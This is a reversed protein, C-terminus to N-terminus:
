IGAAEIWEDITMQHMALPEFNVPAPKVAASIGKIIEKTVEGAFKAHEASPSKGGRFGIAAKQSGTDEVKEKKKDPEQRADPGGDFFKCALWNGRWDTGAGEPHRACAFRKLKKDPQFFQRCESCTHCHDCGGSKEYMFSLQRM